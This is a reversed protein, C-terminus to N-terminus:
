IQLATGLEEIFKDIAVAIRERSESRKAVKWSNVVQDRIATYDPKSVPNVIPNDVRNTLENVKNTLRQNELRLRENESQLDELESSVVDAVDSNDLKKALLEIEGQLQNVLQELQAVRETLDTQPLQPPQGPQLEPQLEPNDIPQKNRTSPQRILKSIEVLRPHTVDESKGIFRKHLKGNVKKVAYWYDVGSLTEKRARYSDCGGIGAEFRFSKNSELWTLFAPTDLKILKNDDTALHQDDDSARNDLPKM